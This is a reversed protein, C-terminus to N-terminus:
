KARKLDIQSLIKQIDDASIKDLFPTAVKEFVSSLYRLQKTIYAHIEYENVVADKHASELLFKFENLESANISNVIIDLAGCEKLANYQEVSKKFDIDIQTYLDVLTLMTFLHAAMSDVHFIKEGDENDYYTNSLIMNIRVVKEEFPVYRNNMIEDIYDEGYEDRAKIKYLKVFTDIKM